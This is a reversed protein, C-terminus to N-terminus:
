KCGGNINIDKLKDLNLYINMLFVFIYDYWLILEDDSLDAVKKNYRRGSTVNDHRLNINNVYNGYMSEINNGFIKKIENTRADLKTTINLIIKKKEELDKSNRYDYYNIVENKIKDDNITGVDIVMGNEVIFGRGDKITIKYGLTLLYSTIARYLLKLYNVDTDPYRVNLSNNKFYFCNFIIEINALIEFDSIDDDSEKSLYFINHYNCNYEYLLDDIDRFGENFESEKFMYNLLDLGRIIKHNNGYVYIDNLLGCIRNCFMRKNEKNPKTEFISKYM